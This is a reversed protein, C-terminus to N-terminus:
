CSQLAQQSCTAQVRQSLVGTDLPRHGDGGGGDEEEGAADCEWGWSM